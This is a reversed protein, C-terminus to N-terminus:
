YHRSLIVPMWPECNLLYNSLKHQERLLFRLPRSCAHETAPKMYGPSAYAQREVRLHIPQTVAHLFWAATQFKHCGVNAKNWDTSKHLFHWDSSISCILYMKVSAQSLFRKVSSHYVACVTRTTFTYLVLSLVYFVQIFSTVLQIFSLM